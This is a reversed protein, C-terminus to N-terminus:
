KSAGKASAERALREAKLRERNEQFSQEAKAYDTLPKAKDTAKFANNAERLHRANADTRIM